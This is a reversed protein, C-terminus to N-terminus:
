CGCECGKTLLSYMVIKKNAIAIAIAFNRTDEIM